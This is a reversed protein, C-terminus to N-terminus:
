DRARRGADRNIPGDSGRQDQGTRSFDAAGHSLRAAVRRRVYTLRDAGSIDDFRQHPISPVTALVATVFGGVLEVLGTGVLNRVGEVDSMIRAVLTGTKNSDYFGVPLRGIHEQIRIRMEYILQQGSKSLLQTLSYSTVGQIITAALVALVIPLLLRFENKLMVDNVLYKTSFPLVLGCVRNILMLLAGILLLGRRPRMLALVEPLLTKLSESRKPKEM